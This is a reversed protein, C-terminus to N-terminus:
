CTLPWESPVSSGVHISCVCKGPPVDREGEGLPLSLCVTIVCLWPVVRALGLRPETFMEFPFRSSEVLVLLMWTRKECNSVEM